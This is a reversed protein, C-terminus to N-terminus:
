KKRELGEQEKKEHTTIEFFLFSKKKVSIM